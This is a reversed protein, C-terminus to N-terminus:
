RARVYLVHRHGNPGDVFGRHREYKFGLLELWRCAPRFTVDALAFLEEYSQEAIVRQALRHLGIFRGKVHQSILCWLLPMCEPPAYVGACAIVTDSERATRAYGAYVGLAAQDCFHARLYAQSAQLEIADLDSLTFHDIRM